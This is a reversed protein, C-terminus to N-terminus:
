CKTLHRHRLFREQVPQMWCGWVWLDRTCPTTVVVVALIIAVKGPRQADVRCIYTPEFNIKILDAHAVAMGELSERVFDEPNNILKKM